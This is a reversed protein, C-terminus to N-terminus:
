DDGSTETENPAAPAHSRLRKREAGSARLYVPELTRVADRAYASLGHAMAAFAAASPTAHADNAVEARPFREAILDHHLLAGTGVFVDPAHALADLFAAPSEARAAVVEEITTTSKSANPTRTKEYVAAYVEERKADIMACVRRHQTDILLPMALLRLSEMGVVEAGAAALGKAFALAIRVGTFSGPGLVVAVRDVDRMTLKSSALLSEVARALEVLHSSPPDFRIEGLVVGDRALATSGVAHSTDLALTVV